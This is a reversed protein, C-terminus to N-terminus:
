ANIGAIERASARANEIVSAYNVLANGINRAANPTLKCVIPSKGSKDEMRVFIPSMDMFDDITTVGIECYENEGRATNGKRVGMEMHVLEEDDPVFL